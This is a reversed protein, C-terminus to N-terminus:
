PQKAVAPTRDVNLNQQKQQKLLPLDAM